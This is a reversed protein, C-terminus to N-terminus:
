ARRVSVATSGILAQVEDGRELPVAATLGGTIVVDGSHLMTGREALRDRLWELAVWPDGMANRGWGHQEAVGNRALSVPLRALGEAPVEPGLVVFAASSGDATNLAWDFRYGEWVSDVVELAARWSVAASRPDDGPMLDAAFVAALEPEAKPQVVGAAIVANDDLLMADTLPGLNPEAIGMQERMAASTYGLKWGALVEGRDLRAQTVVNQAIYATDADLGHDIPATILRGDRRAAVINTALVNAADGNM